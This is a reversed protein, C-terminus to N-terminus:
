VTFALISLSIIIIILYPAIIIDGFFLLFFFIAFLIFVITYCIYKLYIRSEDWKFLKNYIKIIEEESYDNYYLKESNEYVPDNYNSIIMYNDYFSIFMNNTCLYDTVNYVKYSIKINYEEIFLASVYTNLYKHIDICKGFFNKDIINKIDFVINEFELM